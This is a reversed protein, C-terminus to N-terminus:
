EAEARGTLVSIPSRRVLREATSGVLVHETGMRGHTGVVILGAGLEGAKKIIELFPIGMVPNLDRIEDVEEAM